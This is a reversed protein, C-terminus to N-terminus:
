STVAAPVELWPANGLRRGWTLVPILHLLCAPERFVFGDTDAGPARHVVWVDADAVHDPRSELCAECKHPVAEAPIHQIDVDRVHLDPILDALDPHLLGRLTTEPVTPTAAM